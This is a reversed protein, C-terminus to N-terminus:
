ECAVPVKLEAARRALERARRKDRSVGRGHRYMEALARCAAAEGQTCGREYLTVAARWDKSRGEAHANGAETCCATAGNSPCGRVLYRRAVEIDIPTGHSGSRHYAGLRCCAATDGVECAKDESQLVCTHDDLRGCFAALEGCGSAIGQACEKGYLQHVREVLQDIAGTGLEIQKAIAMEALDVCSEVSGGDCASQYARAAAAFYREAKEKDAGVGYLGQSYAAGAMQCGRASQMACGREYLFVARGGLEDDCDTMRDAAIVCADANGGECRSTLTQRDVVRDGSGSVTTCVMVLAWGFGAVVLEDRM